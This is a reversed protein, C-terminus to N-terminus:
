PLEITADLMLLLRSNRDAIGAEASVHCQNGEISVNLGVLIVEVGRHEGHRVLDNQVSKAADNCIEFDTGLGALDTIRSQITVEWVHDVETATQLVADDSSDYPEGMGVVKVGYIAMSLLALLLVVGTALLMQADDNRNNQIM